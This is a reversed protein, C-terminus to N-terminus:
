AFIWVAEGRRERFANLLSSYLVQYEPSMIPDTSMVVADEKNDMYYGKRIGVKRYGYKEYLAHAGFNSVRAELTMLRAKRAMALEIAALMLLEGLGMRRYEDKVAISTIHAEDTMFWIGVYGVILDATPPSQGPSSWFLQRLSTLVRSSLSPPTATATEIRPDGPPDSLLPTYVVLYRALRNSLERKFPTSPWSTPFSEREIEAVQPIDEARMPRISYEM